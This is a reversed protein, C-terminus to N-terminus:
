ESWNMQSEPIGVSRCYELVREKEEANGIGYSLVKDKFVIYKCNGKKMDAFWNGSILANSLREPFDIVDSSFWIMTWYKITDNTKWIEVKDIILHDLILENTLTEKIIAGQYM